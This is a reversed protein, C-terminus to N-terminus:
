KEHINVRHLSLYNIEIKALFFIKKQMFIELFLM